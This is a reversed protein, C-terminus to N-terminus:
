PLNGHVSWWPRTGAMVQVSTGHYRRRGVMRRGCWCQWVAASGVVDIGVDLAEVPMGGGGAAWRGDGGVSM